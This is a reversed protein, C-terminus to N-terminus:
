ATRGTFTWRGARCFPRTGTGTYLRYGLRWVTRSFWTGAVGISWAFGTGTGRSVPRAFRTDPRRAMPRTCASWWVSSWWVASWGMVPRGMPHMGTGRM